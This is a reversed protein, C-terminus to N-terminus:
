GVREGETVDEVDLRHESHEADSKDSSESEEPRQGSRLILIAMGLLLLVDAVNFVWPFIEASGNPWHWGFPLDWGPAMHLFDRVAGFTLRDYLNGLGGALILAIGIHIWRSDSRTWFAFVLTAVIVAIITFVVFILRSQQGIGFVAGHNVVLDFDLLGYPLVEVGEHWPPKWDPDAIIVERDLHVPHAAVNEFAWHKSWLDLSIGLFCVIFLTLWASPSTWAPRSGKKIRTATGPAMLGDPWERGQSRSRDHLPGM